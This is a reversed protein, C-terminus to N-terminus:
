RGRVMEGQPFFQFPFLFGSPLALSQVSKVHHTKRRSQPIQLREALHRLAWALAWLRRLSLNLLSPPWAIGVRISGYVGPSGRCSLLDAARRLAM